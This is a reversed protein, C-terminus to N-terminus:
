EHLAGAYMTSRYGPKAYLLQLLTTFEEEFGGECYCLYYEWMRIFREDYGLARVEPLHAAFSARWERLTRAYHRSFDEQRLLRLDTNGAVAAAMAGPSPCCGGPFIYRNIFDPTRVYNDYIRDPLCIAQILALGDPKLRDGCVQFFTPLHRHGVAEIMEISVLRDYEGTLDRYDKKLLTIRDALGATRIREEAMAYQQDSITTTTVRCGYKRAAHIAFGGWGTGIELLHMEPTLGVSTCIHDFKAISAAEMSCEHREFIGCSYSMTPDLFLRYLDNGLDYHAAINRRSGRRTNDSLRHLLRQLLGAVRALGGEMRKLADQNRVLVRILGSLDDCDWMGRLYAEAAGISGGLATMSWFAPDHVRLTAHLDGSGRGFVMREDGDHIVLVCDDLAQLASTVAKRTFREVIGPQRAVTGAFHDLVQDDSNM